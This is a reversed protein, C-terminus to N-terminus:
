PAIWALEALHDLLHRAAAAQDTQSDLTVIIMQPRYDSSIEFVATSHTPHPPPIRFDDFRGPHQPDLLKADRVLLWLRDMQRPSLSRVIPPYGATPTAVMPGSALRLLGNTEVLYRAPRLARPTPLAGSPSLPEQSPGTPARVLAGVTFGPPRHMGPAPAHCGALLATFILLCVTGLRM